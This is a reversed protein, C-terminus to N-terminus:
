FNKAEEVKENQDLKFGSIEMGATVIQGWHGSLLVKKLSAVQKEFEGPPRLEPPLFALTLDAIRLREIAAIKEEYEKYEDTGKAPVWKREGGKVPVAIMPEKLKKKEEDWKQNVADIEEQTLGNLVIQKVRKGGPVKPDPFELEVVGSKPQEAWQEWSVIKEVGM